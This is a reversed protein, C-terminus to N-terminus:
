KTIIVPHPTAKQWNIEFHEKFNRLIQSNNTWLTRSYKIPPNEDLFIIVLEDDLVIGWPKLCDFCIRMKITPYKFLHQFQKVRLNFENDDKFSRDIIWRVNVGRKLLDNYIDWIQEDKPERKETVIIDVSNKTKKLTKEWKRCFTYSGAPFIKFYDKEQITKHDYFRNANKALKDLRDLTKKYEQKKRDILISIGISLPVASYTTCPAIQKEILEFRELDKITRYVNSKDIDSISSITSVNARGEQILALYVRSQMSTLGASM